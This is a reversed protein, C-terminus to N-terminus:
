IQQIFNNYQILSNKRLDKFQIFFKLNQIILNILSWDEGKKDPM